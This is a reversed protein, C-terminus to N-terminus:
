LYANYITGLTRDGQPNYKTDYSTSGGVDVFSLKATINPSRLSEYYDFSTTKGDLAFLKILEKKITLLEYRSPSAPNSM